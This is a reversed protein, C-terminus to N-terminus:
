QISAFGCSGRPFYYRFSQNCPVPCGVFGLNTPIFFHVAVSVELVCVRISRRMSQNGAPPHLWGRTDMISWAGYRWSCTDHSGSCHPPEARTHVPTADISIHFPVTPSPFSVVGRGRRIWCPILRRYPPTQVPTPTM